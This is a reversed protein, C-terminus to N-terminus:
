LDRSLGDWHNQAVVTWLFLGFLAFVTFMFGVRYSDM